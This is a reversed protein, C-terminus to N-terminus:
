MWSYRTVGPTSTPRPRAVGPATGPRRRTPTEGGQDQVASTMQIETRPPGLLNSPVHNRVVSPHPLSHTPRARVGSMAMNSDPALNICHRLSPPSGSRKPKTVSPATSPRQASVPSSLRSTAERYEATMAALTAAKKPSPMTALLDYRDRPSMSMLTAARGQLPMSALAAKKNAFTMGGLVQEHQSTSELFQAYEEHTQHMERHRSTLDQYLAYDIVDLRESRSRPSTYMVHHSHHARTRCPMQKRRMKAMTNLHSYPLQCYPTGGRTQM